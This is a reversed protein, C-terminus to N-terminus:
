GNYLGLVGENRVVQSIAHFSTKHERLAGGEGLVHYIITVHHCTLVLACYCHHYYKSCASSTIRFM